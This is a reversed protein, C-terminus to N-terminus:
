VLPAKLKSQDSHNSISRMRNLNGEPFKIGSILTRHIQSGLKSKRRQADKAQHKPPFKIFNVEGQLSYDRFSHESENEMIEEAIVGNVENGKLTYGINELFESTIDNEDIL